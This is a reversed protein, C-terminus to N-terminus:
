KMISERKSKVGSYKSSCFSQEFSLGSSAMPSSHQSRSSHRSRLLSLTPKEDAQGAYGAHKATRHSNLKSM